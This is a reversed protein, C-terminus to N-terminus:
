PIKDAFKLKTADLKKAPSPFVAEWCEGGSYADKVFQVTIDTTDSVPFPLLLNNGKGRVQITAAGNKAKIDVGVVGQANGVKNKYVYRTAKSSWCPKEGCIGGHNIPLSMKRVGDDYVCLAYNTSGLHANGFDGLSATDGAWKWRLNKRDPKSVNGQFNFSGKSAQTCGTRPALLCTANTCAQNAGFQAFPTNDIGVFAIEDIDWGPAGVAEDSGIRFRIRVAQGQYAAGLDFTETFLAPYGPSEHVYGSRLSLPNGGGAAITGNYGPSAFAGIDDWTAGNDTSIEVVAGDYNAGGDAEFSYRHQMSWGFSGSSSVQLPPSILYVDALNSADTGSWRHNFPPTASFNQRQWSGGFGGTTWVTDEAEVDDLSSAGLTVGANGRLSLSTSYPHPINPSSLQVDLIYDEVGTAGDMSIDLTATSTALAAISPFTLLGGNAFSVYPSTSSVEATLDTLAVPGTNRVTLTLVGVETNDLYGDADCAASPDLSVSEVEIDGQCAFSEVVGVNDAAFRDPSVAGQGIGRKAFASCFLDADTTKNTRPGGLVADRAETFTPNTPTLKLSAVLYAHMRQRAEAFTLRPSPGLTDGLLAAYCEWLMTAWVEGTNHGQSNSSGSCGFGCPAGSIAVGDQIYRFTLPNKDMDTSWPFRRLGYYSPDSSLAPAVYAAHAYTGSLADGAQVTMLQSVFDSWGEAMGAAQRGDGLGNGDGILRESLYHGWEHAVVQNDLASERMVGGPPADFRYMQMTPSEGDAPVTMTANNSGFRDVQVNLRDGGLGGRGYNDHQANGAAEDFGEDYFADHLYNTDYFLQVITAHQQNMTATPSLLPDYTYVFSSSGSLPARFDGATLGDPLAQDVFADVNNGLTELAGIPLWPDNTSIPGNELSVLSSPVFPLITGDPMGTPHPTGNAGHPSDLPVPEGSTAAWVRYTINDHRTLSHRYLVAGTDAAIVYAYTDSDITGDAESSEVAVEVYYAPILASADRFYVQKVRAPKTLTHRLSLAAAAAYYTYSGRWEGTYSLDGASVPEGETRDILAAAVAEEPRLHSLSRAGGSVDRTAPVISGAVAISELNRDMLVSMEDRFVEIGDIEQRFEVIIAGRGTDHTQAVRAAAVDRASLGYLSAVRGLHTRAETAADRSRASRKMKDQPATWIFKPVGLRDDYHITRGPTLLAKEEARLTRRGRPTASSLTDIEPLKAANAVGAAVAVM